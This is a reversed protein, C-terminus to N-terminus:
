LLRKRTNFHTSEVQGSVADILNGITDVTFPKLICEVAGADILRERTDGTFDSSMIWVPVSPYSDNVLSLFKEGELATPMRLDSILIDVHTSALVIEAAEPGCATVVECGTRKIVRSFLALMLKDDDVLCISPRKVCVDVSCTNM